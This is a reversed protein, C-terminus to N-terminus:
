KKDGGNNQKSFLHTKCSSSTDDSPHNVEKHKKDKQLQNWVPAGSRTSLPALDRDGTLSNYIEM